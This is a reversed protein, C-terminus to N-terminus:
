VALTAFKALIDQKEQDSLQQLIREFGEVVGARNSTYLRLLEDSTGVNTLDQVMIDVKQAQSEFWELVIRDESEWIHNLESESSHVTDRGFWALLTETQETRTQNKNAEVMRRRIYEEALRRRVRWYFYRRANTWDLSERITGKAKMRGATDHLDAFQVALQQYVPMLEQERETLKTKIEDREAGSLAPNEYQGKLTRYKEDLREMAAVLQARRFKIEVIGEPELVGARARKDAYMEMMNENITPDVVVWAGGRLEGNPVIYVFVPQKYSSLADVIYSGYKLIENYMDRQGGSFGRWNAFIMLPLQEGKNFDNIAQATKFASNPYWVNGAEMLVQEVSDGNAPDAPIIHEVSRTEVAIVGMPIGGLRARGVVVTRAWGSLTETFSGKDFFGTQFPSGEEEAEKGGLMWRPDYVAGKPPLYDIDRDWTDSSITIPVPANKREPIYSIWNVIKSIGEYDNQATLHSVGNKYMIQTGGLQLNSTYVDRGLVKNLAPAGTLIIPQGENQITRQGLRVLYAGIGLSFSFFVLDHIDKPRFYLLSGVAADTM